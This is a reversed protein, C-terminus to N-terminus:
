WDRRRGLFRRTQAWTADPIRLTIQALAQHYGTGPPVTVTWTDDDVRVLGTKTEARELTWDTLQVGGLIRLVAHADGSTLGFDVLLQHAPAPDIWDILAATATLLGPLHQHRGPRNWLAVEAYEIARPVNQVTQTHAAETPLVSCPISM